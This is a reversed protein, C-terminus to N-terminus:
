RTAIKKAIEQGAPSKAFAIATNATAGVALLAKVVDHGQQARSKNLRSYQQEMNLRNVVRKLEQDSLSNKGGKKLKKVKASDDSRKSSKALQAKTRRVGWKMGKVGYHELFNEEQNSMGDRGQARKPAM